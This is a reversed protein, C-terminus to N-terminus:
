FKFVAHRGSAAAPKAARGPQQQAAGPAQALRALRQAPGEALKARLVGLQCLADNVAADLQELRRGCPQQQQQQQLLLGGAGPSAAGAGAAEAAEDAAAAAQGRQARAWDQAKALAKLLHDCRVASGVGEASCLQREVVAAFRRPPM